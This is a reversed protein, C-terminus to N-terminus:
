DKVCRVSFGAHKDFSAEYLDFWESNLARFYAEDTDETHETSTWWCATNQLDFYAGAAGRGGGPLATFGTSNNSTMEYGITGEITSLAWGTSSALAKATKDESTSEDYNYGNTILYDILTEWEAKSPIHWGEPCLKGTNVAYWNYLFGYTVVNSQTNNYSCYAGSTTSSWSSSTAQKTIATGDNYTISKLNEAMWVQDGITITQYINGDADKCVDSSDNDEPSCAIFLGTFCSLSILITLRKKSRDLMQEQLNKLLIIKKYVPVM